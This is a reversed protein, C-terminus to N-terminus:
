NRADGYPDYIPFEGQGERANALRARGLFELYIQLLNNQKSGSETLDVSIEAALRYVLATLFTQDARELSFDKSVYEGIAKEIYCWIEEGVIRFTAPIAQPGNIGYLDSLFVCDTPKDYVFQKGIENTKKFALPEVKLAFNWVAERLVEGLIRDWALNCAKAEVSSEDVTEIRSDEILGLAQNYLKLKM